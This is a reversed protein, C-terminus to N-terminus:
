YTCVNNQQIQYISIGTNIDMCNLDSTYLGFETFWGNEPCFNVSTFGPIQIPLGDLYIRYSNAKRLSYGHYNSKEIPISTNFPIGLSKIGCSNPWIAGFKTEPFTCLDRLSRYIYGLYCTSPINVQNLRTKVLKALVPTSIQPHFCAQGLCIHM